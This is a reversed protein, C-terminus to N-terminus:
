ECAKKLGENKELIIELLYIGRFIIQSDSSNLLYKIFDILGFTLFMNLWSNDDSNILTSSILEVLSLKM